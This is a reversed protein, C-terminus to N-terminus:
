AGLAALKARAFERQEPNGERLIEELLERQGEREGMEEYAQALEMKTSVDTANDGGAAPSSLETMLDLLERQNEQEGMEEHAKTERKTSVGTADGDKSAPAETPSAAGTLDLDIRSFDMALGTPMPKASGSPADLDFDFDSEDVAAAGPTVTSIDSATAVSEEPMSLDIDPMRAPASTPPTGITFDLATTSDPVSPRPKLNAAPEALPLRQEPLTGETHLPAAPPALTAKAVYDGGAYLSNNPDLDRGMAAAKDWETGVGGTQNKLDKAIKQFKVADRQGSYIELLKLYIPLRAPDAKLASILIEEGQAERGYAIYVDAEAIPDVGEETSDIAASLTVQSFDTQVSASTDIVQGGTTGFVSNAMLESESLPKEMFASPADGGKGSKRRVASYGLYALLLVILGGGGYVIMPNDDIFSPEDSVPESDSVPEPETKQVLPPQPAEAVPVPIGVPTDVPATETPKAAVPGDSLVPKVEDPSAKAMEAQKQVEAGAQSKLEALKQLDAINKARQATRDREEQLARDRSLLDEELGPQAKADKSAQTRSVELKDQKQETTLPKEVVQPAIRGQDDQKAAEKRVPAAAVTAALKARYANFDRAQAVVIQKAEASTIVTADEASPVGLIKGARLRNMNGGDFESENHKFLAVLMQDLTVGEPKTAIAIKTLTDGRKVKHAALHEDAKAPTETPTPTPMVMPPPAVSRGSTPSAAKWGTEAGSSSTEESITTSVPEPGRTTVPEPERTTVPEPERKTAAEPERKTVPEQIVPPAAKVVTPAVISLGQPPDLLITYERVIRGSSWTLEILMDLFPEDISRDSYMRLYPQGDKRKDVAIRISGLRPAYEIGLKRFAEPPAIHANMSALEERTANLDIEAQLPQGLPSLVTIKGLGAAIASTASL